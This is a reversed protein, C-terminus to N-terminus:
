SRSATGTADTEHDPRERMLASGFGSAREAPKRRQTWVKTFEAGLFLIQASYYIWVLVVLIAGGVGYAAAGGSRAVYFSIGFQGLVFLLATLAAGLAVDGWAIARDPLFKFIAGFLLSVVLFSVGLDAVHWVVHLAPLRGAFYAEVVQLATNLLFSVLLLFGTALVLGLALAQQRVRSWIPQKPPDAKWVRNLTSQINSFVGSAGLAFAGLSVVAAFGAQPHYSASILGQVVNAEADGMAGALTAIVYNRVQAQEAPGLVFGVIALSIL